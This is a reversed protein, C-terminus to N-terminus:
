QSVSPDNVASTSITYINSICINSIGVQHPHLHEHHHTHGGMEAVGVGLDGLVSGGLSLSTHGLGSGLMDM